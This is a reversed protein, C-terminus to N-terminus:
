GELRLNNISETTTKMVSVYSKTIHGNLTNDWIFLKALVKFEGNKLYLKGELVGKQSGGAIVFSSDDMWDVHVPNFYHFYSSDLNDCSFTLKYQYNYNYNNINEVTLINTM